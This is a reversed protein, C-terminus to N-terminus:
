FDSDLIYETEEDISIYSIGDLTSEDIMGQDILMNIDFDEANDAMYDLVESQTLQSAVDMNKEPTAYRLVGLCAVFFMLIAAYKLYNIKRSPMEIIKAGQVQDVIREMIVEDIKSFYDSPLALQRQNDDKLLSLQSLIEDEVQDFYHEPVQDLNSKPLSALIPAIEVIEDVINNYQTM